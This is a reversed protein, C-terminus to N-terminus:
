GEAPGDGHLYETLKGAVGYQDAMECPAIAAARACTATPRSALIVLDTTRDHFWRQAAALAAPVGRTISCVLTMSPGRLRFVICSVALVASPTAAPFRMPSVQRNLRRARLDSLAQVPGENDILVIGIRDRDVSELPSLLQELAAVLYWAAPDAYPVQNRYRPWLRDQASLVSEAFGIVGRVSGTGFSARATRVCNSV